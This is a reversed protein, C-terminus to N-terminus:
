PNAWILSINDKPNVAVSVHRDVGGRKLVTRPMPHNDMRTSHHAGRYHSFMDEKTPKAEEQGFHTMLFKIQETSEVAKECYNERVYEIAKTNGTMVYVLATLVTGTRGHGGICGIHVKHGLRVQVALWQVLQNFTSPNSPARMDHIKYQFSHGSEWPYVKSSEAMSHDLGVYVDADKVVPYMCSGGYVKFEGIM